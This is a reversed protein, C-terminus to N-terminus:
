EQTCEKKSGIAEKEEIGKKNTQLSVVIKKFFHYTFIVWRTNSFTKIKYGWMKTVRLSLVRFSIDLEQQHRSIFREDHVRYANPCKKLEWSKARGGEGRVEGM